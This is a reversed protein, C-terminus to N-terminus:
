KLHAALFDLELQWIEALTPSASDDFAILSHDGNKVIVLDVPVGVAELADNLLYAHQVEIVPDKDGHIILFPPDDASVHTVPSAAAIQKAGFAIIMLGAIDSNQFDLSLDSPGSQDIVAQVRSSQDLHEGVDFNSAGGSTGLLAALHGGASAGMAAIHDADLNYETDHARLFRIACKVDEIYAPFRAFPYLRYNVAAVVYGEANLAAGLGIAESKDGRMWAGGHIQVVVPWPGGENPFYMDLLLDQGDMNCYTVDILSQGAFPFPTQTPTPSPALTPTPTCSTLFLFCPLVILGLKM